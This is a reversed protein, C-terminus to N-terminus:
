YIRTDPRWVCFVRPFLGKKTLVDKVIRVVQIDKRKKKVDQAFAPRVFLGVDLSKWVCEVSLTNTKMKKSDAIMINVM